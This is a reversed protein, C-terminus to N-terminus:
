PLRLARRFWSGMAFLIQDAVNSVFHRLTYNQNLLGFLARFVYGTHVLEWPLYTWLPRNGAWLSRAQSQLTIAKRFRRKWLVEEVQLLHGQLALEQMLLRDPVFADRFVGAQELASVRYLGYVMNGFNRRLRTLARFRQASHNLGLTSFLGKRVNHPICKGHEDIRQTLPYTMVADSDGDLVEVLRALWEPHWLDHDSAWAFYEMSPFSVKALAFVDRWTAVMGLRSSNRVYTFRADIAAFEQAVIRTRDQSCDDLMVVSFKEFSQSRLSELAEKLFAGNNYLPMGFVM